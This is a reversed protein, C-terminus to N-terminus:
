HQKALLRIEDAIWQATEAMIRQGEPGHARGLGNATGTVVLDAIRASREYHSITPAAAAAAENIRAIMAHAGGPRYPPPRNTM